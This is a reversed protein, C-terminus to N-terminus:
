EEDTKKKRPIMLLVVMGAAGLGGISLMLTWLIPNSTDGTKPIDKHTNTITFANGEQSVAKTYGSPVSPEDVTWNFEDTLDQWTYTWDNDKSLKVTELAEGNRYLVVDISTPHTVGTGYWVKKVSVQVPKYIRSNTITFSDGDRTVTKEYNEPVTKEDVTWTFEDTLDLWTYAWSNDQNLTVTKFEKGDRYLVAEVSAPHTVGTGQWVKRVSIQVPKAIKTNIIDFSYGDQTVNKKYGQPVTKEDVTWTFEDTLDLWTHTWNNDQTLKVTDYAEGDRYLVAEVSAPHTVGESAIWTKTVTLKEIIKANKVTLTNDSWAWANDAEASVAGVAWQWINQFTNGKLEVRVEGDDEKVTVAWVIDSKAYGEPAKTETLLYTGDISQGDVIFGSLLDFVVIGQDNSTFSISQMVKGDTSMRDLKFVAGALPAGTTDVKRITLTAPLELTQENRSYTNTVTAAASVTTGAATFGPNAEELVLIADTNSVRDAATYSTTMSYGPVSADRETVTYTGLPLEKLTVSWNNAANLEVTRTIPGSVNLTIGTLGEPIYGGGFTKVLTMQGLVPLNTVTLLDTTKNFNSAEVWAGSEDRVSIKPEYSTATGTTVAKMEVKYLTDSLYFGQPAVTERLYYTATQQGEPVTFGTFHAYGDAGTTASITFEEDALTVLGEETQQFIQFIAGALASGEGDIKKIYFDGVNWETYSNTLTLEVASDDAINLLGSTINNYEELPLTGYTVSNWTYGHISALSEHILYQGLPLEALSATFSNEKNLRLEWTSGIGTIAGQQDRAIPGHVIVVATLGDKAEDNLGTVQKRLTLSGMMPANVVRLRNLASNFIADCGEALTVELGYPTIQVFKGDRLEETPTGATLTLAFAHPDPLYGPLAQTEKLYYTGAQIGSVEAFNLYLLGGDKTTFSTLAQTCGTDTYLTFVVGDQGLNTDQATKMLTLSPWSSIPDGQLKTYTNTFTVTGLKVNEGEYVPTLTVTVFDTGATGTANTGTVAVTTARSYGPVNSNYETVTIPTDYQYIPLRYEGTATTKAAVIQPYDVDVTTQGDGDGDYGTDIRFWLDSAAAVAAAEGAFVKDIVIYAPAPPLETVTWYGNIYTDAVIPVTINNAANTDGDDLPSMGKAQPNVNFEASNSYVDWGHFSYLLGADYDYFSTGTVYETDYVYQSNAEHGSTTAPPMPAGAPLDMMEGNPGFVKWQYTVSHYDIVEEIDEVSVTFDLGQIADCIAIAEIFKYLHDNSNYTVVVDKMVVREGNADTYTLDLTLEVEILSSRSINCRYTWEYNTTGTWSKSFEQRGNVRVVMTPNSVSATYANGGVNLVYSGEVRIHIHDFSGTNYYVSKAIQLQASSLGGSGGFSSFRASTMRATKNTDGDAVTVTASYVTKDMQRGLGGPGYYLTYTGPAFTATTGDMNELRGSSNAYYPIDNIVIYKRTQNSVTITATAEEAAVTSAPLLVLLMVLAMLLSMVKRKM